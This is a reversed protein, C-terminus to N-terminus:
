FNILEFLGFFRGTFFLIMSGVVSFIFSFRIRFCLLFKGPCLFIRFPYDKVMCPIILIAIFSTFL